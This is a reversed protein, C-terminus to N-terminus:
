VRLTPGTNQNTTTPEGRGSVVAYQEKENRNISVSKVGELFQAVHNKTGSDLVELFAVNVDLIILLDKIHAM